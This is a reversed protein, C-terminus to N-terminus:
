QLAYAEIIAIGTTNNAGRVIATYAAPQLTTILAAERADTPPITTAIIENQQTTRWDNNSMLLAGNRDHLELTPDALAGALGLSPGIARILVRTPSDGLLILGGILAHDGGQVLARTSINALQSNASRDLDYIEVIASGTTQNTGSVVATYSGPALTAVIASERRDSPAITSAVIEQKNASESWNDNSAITSGASNHLDLTPDLLKDALTLSPGIARVIVKKPQTGTVIFGGILANAGTGVFSRTSINGLVTAATTPSSTPTATPEPTTTPQPTATPKPTATVAPTATATPIPTPTPAPETASALYDVKVNNGGSVVATQQNTAFGGGSFTVTYSGDAPVPASYGGSPATVAYFDSGAVTVTVGGIGEGLDYFGNGNLDRYVVGTVFPKTDYRFGFDQTVLQPGVSGNSGLMVGVGIERFAGHINERHGAPTQM